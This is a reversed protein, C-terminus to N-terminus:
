RANERVLREIEGRELLTEGSFKGRLNLIFRFLSMSENVRQQETTLRKSAVVQALNDRLRSVLQYMARQQFSARYAGCDQGAPLYHCDDSYFDALTQSASAALDTDVYRFHLAMAAMDEGGRPLLYQLYLGQLAQLEHFLATLYLRHSNDQLIALDAETRLRRAEQYLGQGKLREELASFFAPFNEIVERLSKEGDSDTFHQQELEALTLMNLVGSFGDRQMILRTSALLQPDVRYYIGRQQRQALLLQYAHMREDYAAKGVEWPQVEDIAFVAQVESALQHVRESRLSHCATECHLTDIHATLKENEEDLVTAEIYASQEIGGETVDIFVKDGEGYKSCGALAFFL